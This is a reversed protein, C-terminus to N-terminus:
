ANELCAIIEEAVEEETLKDTNIQFHNDAYLQQRELFLAKVEETTKGQLVPRSDVLVGMREEWAEWSIALHCVICNMLCAQRIEEQIFAGGGLSLVKGTEKCYDSIMNKEKERFVEEGMESFIETIPMQYAKEIEQDIDIFARGLKSALIQGVTTKGAGMFGILVINRGYLEAQNSDM